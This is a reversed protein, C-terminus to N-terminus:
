FMRQIGLRVSQRLWIAPRPQDYKFYNLQYSVMGRFNKSFQYQYGAQIDLIPSQVLWSAALRDKGYYDFDPRYVASLVSAFAQVYVRHVPSFRYTAKATAGLSVAATSQVTSVEIDPSYNTSNGFLRIGVGGFYALRNESKDAPSLRWQYNLVLDVLRSSAKRSVVSQPNAQTYGAELQWQTKLREQGYVAQIGTGTGRYTYDSHFHDKIHLPSLGVNLGIFQSKQQAIVPVFGLIGILCILAKLLSMNM